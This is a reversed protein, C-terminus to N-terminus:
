KTSCKGEEMIIGTGIWGLPTQDITLARKAQPSVQVDFSYTVSQQPNIEAYGEYVERGNLTRKQVANARGNLQMLNNIQGGAPAYFLIKEMGKGRYNENVSTIYWPLSAVEDDKMTNKLTYQVHYIDGKDGCQVKEITANRHIYWGMKSPNQETLYIGVSPNEPSSPVEGTFGAAKIQKELNEDFAYMTFHRDRAMTDMMEGISALKSVNLDKFMGAIIQATAVGFITDTQTEDYRIYITNLLYEATNKGTLVTGDPLTVDGNIAVLQQVFVPDLMIVGDLPTSQGWPTRNWISRLSLAARETEPFVATDRIDFSMKLPGENGFIQQEDESHDGSGYKIYDTNSRFEGVHISGNDTTLEGVSGILGGSSRMESTTMSLVAYTRSQSEGLFGPLMNFTNALANVKTALANLSDSGKTYAKQVQEIHPEPLANYANVQQQLSRNASTIGSQADIIPKLNLGDGVSLNANQLNTVVTIFQPVSQHTLNNIVETMGQVATIDDGVYPIKKAFEWCKGHAISNAEATEQQIAPLQEQVAAMKKGDANTSFNSLVVLANNEHAQVQKAENYVKYAIVGLFALFALIIALAVVLWPWIRHKKRRKLCSSVSHSAM